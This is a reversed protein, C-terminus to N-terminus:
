RDINASRRLHSLRQYELLSHEPFVTDISPWDGNELEKCIGIFVEQHEPM